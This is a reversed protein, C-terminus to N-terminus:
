RKRENLMAEYSERLKLAKFEIAMEVIEDPFDLVEPHFTEISFRALEKFNPVTDLEM